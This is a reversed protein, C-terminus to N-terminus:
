VDLLSFEIYITSQSTHITTKYTSNVTLSFQDFSELEEKNIQRVLSLNATKDKNSYDCIFMVGNKTQGGLKDGKILFLDESLNSLNSLYNITHEKVLIKM